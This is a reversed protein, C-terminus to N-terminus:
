CEFVVERGFDNKDRVNNWLEDHMEDTWDDDFQMQQYRERWAFFRQQLESSQQNIQQQEDLVRQFASLIVQEDYLGMNQAQLVMQEPIHVTMTNM